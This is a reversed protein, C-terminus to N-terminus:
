WGWEGGAQVVMRAGDQEREDAVKKLALELRDLDEKIPALPRGDKLFCKKAALVPIFEHFQEPADPQDSDASMDVVQPTYELHIEYIQDPTPVLILNNKQFYYRQPAGTIPYRLDRENPTMLLIKKSPENASQGNNYWELRTIAYFDTPLALVKENVVTTTKVCETYYDHGALVLMGQLERQALNLRQKVVALPFYGFEPDDVTDGVLTQMELFTM